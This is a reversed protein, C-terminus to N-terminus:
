ELEGENTEYAQKLEGVRDTTTQEMCFAWSMPNMRLTEAPLFSERALTGAGYL